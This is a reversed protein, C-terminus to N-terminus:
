HCNRKMQRNAAFPSAQITKFEVMWDAVSGPAFRGGSLTGITPVPKATEIVDWHIAVAVSTLLRTRSPFTPQEM